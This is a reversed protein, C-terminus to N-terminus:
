SELTKRLFGVAKGVAKAAKNILREAAQSELDGSEVAELLKRYAVEELEEELASLRSMLNRITEKDM